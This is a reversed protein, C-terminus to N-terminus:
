PRGSGQSAPLSHFFCGNVKAIALGYLGVEIHEIGEGEEVVREEELLLFEAGSVAVQM